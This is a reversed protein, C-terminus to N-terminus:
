QPRVGLKRLADKVVLFPANTLKGGLTCDPSADYQDALMASAAVLARLAEVSSQNAKDALADSLNRVAAALDGSEWSDVVEHAANLLRLITPFLAPCCGLLGASDSDQGRHVECYHVHAPSIANGGGRVECGCDFDSLLDTQGRARMRFTKWDAMEEMYEPAITGRRKGDRISEPLGSNYDVCGRKACPPTWQNKKMSLESEQGQNETHQQGRFRVFIRSDRAPMLSPICSVACRAIGIWREQEEPEERDFNAKQSVAAHFHGWMREALWRIDNEEKCREIFYGKNHLDCALSDLVRHRAEKSVYGLPEALESELKEV